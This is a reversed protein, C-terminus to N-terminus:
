SKCIEKQTTQQQNLGLVWLLKVNNFSYENYVITLSYESVTKFRLEEYNFYIVVGSSDTFERERKELRIILHM